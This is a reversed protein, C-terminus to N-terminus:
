LPSVFHRQFGDATKTQAAVICPVRTLAKLAGLAARAAHARVIQTLLSVVALEAGDADRLTLTLLSINNLSSRTFRLM